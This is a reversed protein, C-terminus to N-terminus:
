RVFVVGFGIINVNNGGNCGAFNGTASDLTNCSDGTGGIGIRSDPSNCNNEQNPAPIFNPRDRVTRRGSFNKPSVIGAVAVSASVRGAHLSTSSAPKSSRSLCSTLRRSSAAFSRPPTIPMPATM